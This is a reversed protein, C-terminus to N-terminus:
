VIVRLFPCKVIVASRVTTDGQGSIIIHDSGRYEAEETRAVYKVNGDDQYPREDRKERM